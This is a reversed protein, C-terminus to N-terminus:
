QTFRFHTIRYHLTQAVISQIIIVVWLLQQILVVICQRDPQVVLNIVQLLHPHYQSRTLM